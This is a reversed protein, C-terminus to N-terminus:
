AANGNESGFKKEKKHAVAGFGSMRPQRNLNTMKTM